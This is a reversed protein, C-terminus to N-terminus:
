SNKIATKLISWAKKFEGAEILEFALQNSSKADKQGDIKIWELLLSKSLDILGITKSGRVFCCYCDVHKNKIVKQISFKFRELLDASLTVKAKCEAILNLALQISFKNSDYEYLEILLEISEEIQRNIFIAHAKIPMLNNILLSEYTLHSLIKLAEKAKNDLILLQLYERQLPKSKPNKLYATKLVELGEKRQNLDFLINGKYALLQDYNPCQKLGKIVELFARQKENRRMCSRVIHFTIHGYQESPFERIKNQVLLILKKHQALSLKTSNDIRRILSTANVSYGQHSHPQKREITPSIKKIESRILSRFAIDDQVTYQNWSINSIDSIHKTVDIKIKPILKSKRGIDSIFSSINIRATREILIICPTGFALIMGLELLINPRLGDLLVISMTCEKTYKLIDPLLQTGGIRAEDLKIVSFNLENSLVETLRDIGKPIHQERTSYILFCTKQNESSEIYEKTTVHLSM